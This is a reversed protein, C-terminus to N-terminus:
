PTLFNFFNLRYCQKPHFKIGRGVRESAWITHANSYWAASLRKAIKTWLFFEPTHIICQQRITFPTLFLFMFFLRPAVHFAKCKATRSHAKRWQFRTEMGGVEWDWRWGRALATWKAGLIFVARRKVAFFGQHYFPKKTFLRMLNRLVTVGYRLSMGEAHQTIRQYNAAFCALPM